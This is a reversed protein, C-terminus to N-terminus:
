GQQRYLRMFSQPNFGNLRNGGVLFVPVGRGNLKKYDRRGKESKEVDYERFAIDNQRLWVKAQDCITCWSASYLVVTRSVSPKSQHSDGAPQGASDSNEQVEVERAEVNLPPTDGFHVVGQQDVWRYVEARVGAGSTLAVAVFLYTTLRSFCALRV